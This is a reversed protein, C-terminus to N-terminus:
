KEVFKDKLNSKLLKKLPESYERDMSTYGIKEGSLKEIIIQMGKKLTLIKIDSYLVDNTALKLIQSISNTKLIKEGKERIEQRNYFVNTSAYDTSGMVKNGGTVPIQIFLLRQNTVLLTNEPYKNKGSGLVSSSYPKLSFGVATHLIGFVSGEIKENPYHEIKHQVVSTDIGKNDFKINKIRKLEIFSLVVMLFMFGGFILIIYLPIGMMFFILLFISALPIFKILELKKEISIYEQNIEAFDNSQKLNKMWSYRVFRMVFEFSNFVVFIWILYKLTDSSISINAINQTVFNSIENSFFLSIFTASFIGSVLGFVANIMKYREVTILLTRYSEANNQTKINWISKLNKIKIYGAILTVLIQTGILIGVLILSIQFYGVLVIGLIILFLINTLVAKFSLAEKILEGKKALGSLTSNKNFPNPIIEDPNIKSM